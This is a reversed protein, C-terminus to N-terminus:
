LGEDQGMDYLALVGRESLPVALLCSQKDCRFDFTHLPDPPFSQSPLAISFLMNQKEVDWFKVTADSGATILQGSPAFIGQKVTGTHGALKSELILGNDIRFIELAQSDGGRVVYSGDPSIKAWRIGSQLLPDGVEKLGNNEIALLQLKEASNVLLYRGDNDFSLTDILTNDNNQAVQIKHTPKTENGKLRHLDYLYVWGDWTSSALWRGDPSFAIANLQPDHRLAIKEKLTRNELQWLKLEPDNYNSTAIWDGTPSVQLDTFHSFPHATITENNWTKTERNYLRLVSSDYGVVVWPSNAILSAKKVQQADPLPVLQQQSSLTASWELLRNDYAASYITNSNPAAVLASIQATHGEFERLLRGSEVDWLRLDADAGGSVLRKGQEVFALTSVKGQHGLLNQQVKGNSTQWLFIQGDTGGSALSQNDPSFIVTEVNSAHGQLVRKLEWSKTDWIKVTKDQGGSILFHGDPSFALAYVANSDIDDKDTFIAPDLIFNTKNPNKADTIYIKGNEGAYALLTGEPHFAIANIATDIPINQVVLPITIEQEPLKWLFLTHSGAGILQKQKPNFALAFVGNDKSQFQLTQSQNIKLNRIEAKGNGAVALHQGNLSVSLAYPAFSLPEILLPNQLSVIDIINQLYNRNQFAKQEALWDNTNSNELQKKADTYRGQQLQSQAIFVSDNFMTQKNKYLSWSFFVTIVTATAISIKIINNRKTEIIQIKKKREDEIKQVELELKEKEQQKKLEENAKSKNIFLIVDSFAINGEIRSYRQSWKETKEEKLWQKSNELSIGKLLLSNDEKNNLWQSSGEELKQYFKEAWQEKKVWGQLRVWHQIISEHVLDIIIDKSLNTAHPNINGEFDQGNEVSYATTEKVPALFYHDRFVNIVEIIKDEKVDSTETIEQLTAPRRVLRLTQKDQQTLICFIIEALKKQKSNLEDFAEELHQLLCLHLKNKSKAKIEPPLAAVAEYHAITMTALEEAKNKHNRAEFWIRNLAHQLLPLRTPNYGEEPYAISDTDNLLSNVLESRIKDNFSEIPIKISEKLESHNMRPLLYLGTNIVEPLSPHAECEQLYEGRMSVIFWVQDHTSVKLLLKIFDGANENGICNKYRLLEEFQDIYFLLQTDKPLNIKEILKDFDFEKGRLLKILEEKNITNNKIFLNSSLLSVAMNTYPSKSPRFNIIEWHPLNEIGKNKLVPIVGAQVLSSKGCGSSGLITIFHRIQSHHQKEMKLIIEDICRMRGYFISDDNKTFPRLGTYPYRAKPKLNEM